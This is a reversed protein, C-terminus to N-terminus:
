HLRLRKQTKSALVKLGTVDLSDGFERAGAPCALVCYPKRQDVPITTDSIRHECLYCKEVIGKKRLDYQTVGCVDTHTWKNRYAPAIDVQNVQARVEAESATCDTIAQSNSTLYGFPQMVTPIYSIVSFQANVAGVDTTSYLCQRQCARCGICKSDDHLVFGGYEPKLKYMAKRKNDVCKDDPVPTVPCAAVCAPEECHNCNLPLATWKTNPFYGTTETIFDARNFTQGSQRKPTNNGIKCAMACTGCGVCKSLDIIMKYQQM